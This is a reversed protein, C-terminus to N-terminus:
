LTQSPKAGTQLEPGPKSGTDRMRRPGTTEQPLVKSLLSLIYISYVCLSGMPETGTNM